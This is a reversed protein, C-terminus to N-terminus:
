AKEPVDPFRLEKSDAVLPMHNEIKAGYGLHYSHGMEKCPLGLSLVVPSDELLMMTVFVDFDKVYM